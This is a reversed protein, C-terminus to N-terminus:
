EALNWKKLIDNLSGDDKMAKLQTNIYEALQTNELKAAIGYEQPKFGEKLINTEEDLYGSLISKDAVFADIQGTALADKIEPYSAFDVFNMEVGLEKCKEDLADKATGGEVVGIKKGGLDAIKSSALDNRVLFGIEDVYYPDSFNFSKKREETITFTAIVLDIEGNDLLPGRTQASLPVLKIKTEDGLISKALAKAVDVEMGETEGSDPNLYGFNPVDVKVGVRLVDRKKIEDVQSGGSCSVSFLMLAALALLILKKM